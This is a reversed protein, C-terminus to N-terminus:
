FSGSGIYFSIMAWTQAHISAEPIDVTLGELVRILWGM